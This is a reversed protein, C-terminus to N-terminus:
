PGSAEAPLSRKQVMELGEARTLTKQLLLRFRSDFRGQSHAHCCKACALKGLKRKSPFSSLCGLCRYVYRYPRLRPVPNYRSVGMLKMKQLFESTHGYPQKRVWLWYHIMEHAVTDLILESARAEELLYSAVEIVPPVERIM